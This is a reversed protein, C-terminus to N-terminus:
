DAVARAEEAFHDYERVIGIRYEGPPISVPNHEEHLLTVPTKKVTLWREGTEKNRFLEWNLNTVKDAKDDTFHASMGTDLRHKHGTHEGYQIIPDHYRELDKKVPMKVKEFVVDGQQIQM